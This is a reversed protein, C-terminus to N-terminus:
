TPCLKELSERRSVIPEDADDLVYIRAYGPMRKAVTKGKVVSIEMFEATV